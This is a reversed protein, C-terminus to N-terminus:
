PVEDVMRMPFTVVVPDLHSANGCVFLTSLMFSGEASRDGNFVEEGETAGDIDRDREMCGDPSYGQGGEKAAM